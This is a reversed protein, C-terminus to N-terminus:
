SVEVERVIISADKMRRPSPVALRWVMEVVPQGFVPGMLQDIIVTDLHPRAVVPDRGEVRVEIEVGVRPLAFSVGGGGPM